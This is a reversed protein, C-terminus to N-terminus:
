FRTKTRKQSYLSNARIFQEEKKRKFYVKFAMLFDQKFLTCVIPNFLATVYRFFLIFNNVIHANLVNQYTYEYTLLELDNEIAALIYLICGLIFVAIMAVFLIVIKTENTYQKNRYTTERLSTAQRRQTRVHAFIKVYCVIMISLPFAIVLAACVFDYTLEAIHVSSDTKRIWAMQIVSAFLSFLWVTILTKRTRSTSVLSRYHLKTIRIYRELTMVLLHTVTSFLLFRNCLDMVICIYWQKFAMSCALMLPIALAGTCIDSLALSLLIQNSATRLHKNHWILFLVTGNAVIIFVAFVSYMVYLATSDFTFNPWDYSTNVTSYSKSLNM